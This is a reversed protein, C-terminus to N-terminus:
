ALGIRKFIDTDTSIMYVYDSVLNPDFLREIEPNRVPKKNIHHYPIFEIAEDAVEDTTEIIQEIKEKSM